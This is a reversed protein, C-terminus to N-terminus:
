DCNQWRSQYNLNSIIVPGDSDRIAALLIPNKAIEDAAESFEDDFEEFQEEIIHIEEGLRETGIVSALRNLGTVTLPLTVALTLVLPVVVLLTLKTSLSIDALFSVKPLSLLAQNGGSQRWSLRQLNM